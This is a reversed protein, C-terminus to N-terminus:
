AGRQRVDWDGGPYSLRQQCVMAGGFHRFRAPQPSGATGTSGGPQTRGPLCLLVAGPFVVALEVIFGCVIDYPFGTALTVIGSIEWGSFALNQPSYWASGSRFPVIYIPAFVLRHRADYASNGYNLLTNYQNYGRGSSGFGSNEFSSANDLAHSLTYSM